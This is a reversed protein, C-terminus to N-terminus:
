LKELMRKAITKAQAPSNAKELLKADAVLAADGKKEALEVIGAFASGMGGNESIFKIREKFADDTTVKPGEPNVQSIPTGPGGCGIALVSLLILPYWLRMMKGTQLPVLCGGLLILGHLICPKIKSVAKQQDLRYSLWSKSNGSPKGAM